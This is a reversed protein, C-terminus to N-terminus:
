IKSELDIEEGPGIAEIPEAAHLKKRQLWIYRATGAAALLLAFVSGLLAVM